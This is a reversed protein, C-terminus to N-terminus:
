NLKMEVFRDKGSFYADGTSKFTGCRMPQGAISECLEGNNASWLGKLSGKVDDEISSTGDSHFTILGTGDARTYQFTKGNITIMIEEASLTRIEQPQPRNSSGGDLIRINKNGGGGCATLVLAAAAMAMLGSKQSM